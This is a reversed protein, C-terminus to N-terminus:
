AKTQLRKREAALIEQGEQPNRAFLMVPFNPRFTKLANIIMGMFVRMQFSAGICIVSKIRDTRSDEIIGRRAGATFAGAGSLEQVIIVPGQGDGVYDIMERMRKLQEGL